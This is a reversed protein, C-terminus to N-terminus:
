EEKSLHQNMAIAIAGSVSSVNLKEYIKRIHEKVEDQNLGMDGAIDRYNKGKELLTLVQKEPDTLLTSESSTRMAFSEMFMDLFKKATEPNIRSDLSFLEEIREIMQAGPTTKLLYGNAGASISKIVMDEEDYQTLMLVPLEEFHERIIKVAEIGNIGPMGIDMLVLDPDSARIDAEVSNAHTFAGAIVINAHGEFVIQLSARVFQDDDFLAIRITKM